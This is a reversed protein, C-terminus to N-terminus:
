SALTPTPRKSWARNTLEEHVFEWWEARTLMNALERTADLQARILSRDAPELIDTGGSVKNVREALLMMGDLWEISAPALCAKSLMAREADNMNAMTRLSEDFMARLEADCRSGKVIVHRELRDLLTLFAGAPSM